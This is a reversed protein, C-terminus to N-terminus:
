SRGTQFVSEYHHGNSGDIDSLPLTTEYVRSEDNHKRQRKRVFVVMIVVILIIFLGGISAGIIIPTSDPKDTVTFDKTTFLLTLDFFTTDIGDTCSIKIVYESTTTVDSSSNDPLILSADAFSHALLL